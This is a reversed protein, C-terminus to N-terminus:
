GSRKSVAPTKILTQLHAHCNATIRLYTKTLKKATQLCQANKPKICKSVPYRKFAVEVNKAWDKQFKAPTKTLTQLHAHCKATIRM